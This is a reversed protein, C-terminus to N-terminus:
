VLHRFRIYIALDIAATGLLVLVVIAEPTM